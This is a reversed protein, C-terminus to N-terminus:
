PATPGRRDLLLLAAPLALMAAALCTLESIAMCLGFSRLALNSSVLLSAYGVVTTLSCVM